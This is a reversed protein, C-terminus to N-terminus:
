GVEDVIRPLYIRFEAGKGIESSVAVHGGAAIVIGYVTSLGLGTGREISKTTFFPEFVRERVEPPMGDGSDRVRILIWRGAPIRDGVTPPADLRIAEVSIRIQGGRPMADRANVVLNLVVQEFQVPDIRVRADPGSGAIELRITAGAAQSLLPASHRLSELPSLVQPQGERRRSFDLLRRTLGTAQRLAQDVLRLHEARSDNLLGSRELDGKLLDIGGSVVMLVNNFDHAVGGAMRGLAEMKRVQQLQSERESQLIMSGLVLAAIRLANVEVDAWAQTHRCADFGMFGWWLPGVFIPQVLLSRISQAELLARESEPFDEIDGVVPRGSGLLDVWRSFGAALLPVDMLDPNDIQPEIGKAVWEFRQAVRIEPDERRTVEFLYVRDVGTAEGLIRLLDPLLDRWPSAESM